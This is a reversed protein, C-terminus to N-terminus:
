RASGAAATTSWAATLRWGPSHRVRTTRGTARHLLEALEAATFGKLVSQRGDSRTIPHFGLMWSAFWFGWAALRSRRLDSVVVGLSSVRELESLLRVVGEPSFHHLLQSCTAIDVAHDGIPLQLANGCVAFTSHESSKRALVSSIDLTVVQVQVDCAAAAMRVRAPIDGTGSGVDLLVLPRAPDHAPLLRMVAKVVARRGGFLANSRAVDAMSRLRLADSTGPDDLIEPESQRPPLAFM